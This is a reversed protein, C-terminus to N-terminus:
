RKAVTSPKDINQGKDTHRKSVFHMFNRMRYDEPNVGRIVTKKRRKLAFIEEIKLKLSQIPNFHSSFDNHRDYTCSPALM